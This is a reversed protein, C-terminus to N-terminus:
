LFNVFVKVSIVILKDYCHNVFSFSAWVDICQRSNLAAIQINQVCFLVAEFM